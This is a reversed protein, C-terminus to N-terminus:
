LDRIKDTQEGYLRQFFRILERQLMADEFIWEGEGNKFAFIRNTKRRQMTRRHFFSTNCDGLSLWDCRSKHKWLVEEHQLVEESEEKVKMEKQVLNDAGLNELARKNLKELELVNLGSRAVLANRIPSKSGAELNKGDREGKLVLDGKNGFNSGRNHKNVLGLNM